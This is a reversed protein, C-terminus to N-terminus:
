VEVIRIILNLKKANEIANLTGRSNNKIFAICHTSNEMITKNRIIPAIKSPFKDYEPLYVETKHGKSGAWDAALSDLGRAGGSVVVIEEKVNKTFYDLTKFVFDKDTITRSGVVALKL